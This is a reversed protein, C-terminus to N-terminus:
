ATRRPRSAAAVTSSSSHRLADIALVPARGTAHVVVHHISVVKDGAGRITQKFRAHERVDEFGATWWRPAV